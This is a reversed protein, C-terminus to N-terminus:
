VIVAPVSVLAAVGTRRIPLWHMGVATVLAAALFLPLVKSWQIREPNGVSLISVAVTSVIGGVFASAFISAFRRWRNPRPAMLALDTEALHAAPPTYPDNM